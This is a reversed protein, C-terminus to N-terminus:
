QNTAIKKLTTMQIGCRWMRQATIETTPKREDDAKVFSPVKEVSPLYAFLYATRRVGNVVAGSVDSRSNVCYLTGLEGLHKNRKTAGILSKRPM